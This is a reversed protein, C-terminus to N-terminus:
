TRRPTTASRTGTRAPGTTRRLSTPGRTSRSRTSTRSTARRQEDPGQLVPRVANITMDIDDCSRRTAPSGTPRPRGPWPTSRSTCRSPTTTTASSPPSADQARQDGSVDIGHYWYAIAGRRRDFGCTTACTDTGTEAAELFRDEGTLLYATAFGTSWGPSRTPRRASTPGIYDAHAHRELSCTPATTACTTTSGTRSSAELYFDAIGRVQHMWWDPQEFLYTPAGCRRSSSTSPRSRPAAPRPPYFIGYVHVPVPGPALMDRVARHRRHVGRRLQAADRRLHEATLHGHVRPRRLHQLGFSDTTRTTAPSMAPSPDSFTFDVDNAM